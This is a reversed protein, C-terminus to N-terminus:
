PTLTLVTTRPVNLTVTTLNVSTNASVALTLITFSVSTSGASVTIPSSVSALDPYATFHVVMGGTPAKGTLTVTAYANRGGKVTSSFLRFTSVEPPLVQLQRTLSSSGHSATFTAFSTGPVPKTTIVFSASTAGAAITISSPLTAAQTNNSALTVRYGGSPAAVPIRVVGNVQVGGTVGYSSLEFSQLQIPSVHLTQQLSVGALSATMTTSALTTPAHGVCTFSKSIAGAPITLTSPIAAVSPTTNAMSVVVGGVPAPLRLSVTGTTSLGDLISSNTLTFGSLRPNTTKVILSASLATPGLQATILVNTDAGVPHTAIPVTISTTGPALTVSPQISAVSSDSSSLYVTTGPPVAGLDLRVTGSAGIGAFVSLPAIQFATLHVIPTLLCAHYAGGPGQATAAIQGYDNISQAAVIKWPLSDIVLNNFGTIVGSDWLFGGVPTPTSKTDVITGVVQDFRNIGTAYYKIASDSRESGLDVVEGNRWMLAHQATSFGIGVIHGEDNVARASGGVYTSDPLGLIMTQNDKYSFPLMTFLGPLNTEGVVQGGNNIAWALSPANLGPIPTPVGNSWLTAVSDSFDSSSASAGVAIGSDNLGCARALTAPGLPPLMSFSSGDYLFASEAGTTPDIWSGSIANTANIAFGTSITSPTPVYRLAGSAWFFARDSAGYGTTATLNGLKNIGFAQGSTTGTPGLDTFTYQPFGFAGPVLALSLCGIAFRLSRLCICM